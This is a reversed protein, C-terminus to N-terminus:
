HVWNPRRTYALKDQLIAEDLAGQVVRVVDEGLCPKEILHEGDKLSGLASKPLSTAYVVPHGPRVRRWYDALEVGSFDDPLLVDTLLLDFRNSSNLLHMADNARCVSTVQFGADSLADTLTWQALADDDVFLIHGLNM